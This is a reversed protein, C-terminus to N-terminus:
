CKFNITYIPKPNNFIKAQNLSGRRSTLSTEVPSRKNNVKHKTSGGKNNSNKKSHLLTKNDM